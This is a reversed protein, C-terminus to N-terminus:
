KEKGNNIIKVKYWLEKEIEDLTKEKIEEEKMKVFEPNNIWEIYWNERKVLCWYKRQEMKYINLITIEWLDKDKFTEWKIFNFCLTYWTFGPFCLTCKYNNKNFDELSVRIKTQIVEVEKM